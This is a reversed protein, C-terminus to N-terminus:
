LGGSIEVGEIPDLATETLALTAEFRAAKTPCTLLRVFRREITPESLDAPLMGLTVSRTVVVPYLHEQGCLPCPVAFRLTEDM